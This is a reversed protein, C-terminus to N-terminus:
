SRFGVKKLADTTQQHVSDFYDESSPMGAWDLSSFDISNQKLEIELMPMRPVGEM